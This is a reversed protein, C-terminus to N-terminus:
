RVGARRHRAAPLYGGHAMRPHHRVHGARRLGQLQYHVTTMNVGVARAIENTSAPWGDDTLRVVADLTRQEAVTM